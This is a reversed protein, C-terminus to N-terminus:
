RVSPMRARVAASVAFGSALAQANVPKLRAGLLDVARVVGDPLEGVVQEELMPEGLRRVALAQAHGCREGGQRGRDVGRASGAPASVEEAEVM